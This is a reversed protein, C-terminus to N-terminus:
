KLTYKINKLLKYEKKKKKLLFKNATQKKKSSQSPFLTGNLILHSAM